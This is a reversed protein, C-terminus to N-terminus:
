EDWRWEVRGDQRRDERRERKEGYMGTDLTSLV